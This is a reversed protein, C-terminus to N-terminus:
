KLHEALIQHSSPKDKEIMDLLELFQKRLKIVNNSLYGDGKAQTKEYYRGNEMNQLAYLIDSIEQSYRNKVDKM